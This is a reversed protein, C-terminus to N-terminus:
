VEVDAADLLVADPVAKPVSHVALKKMEGVLLGDLPAANAGFAWATYAIALIMTRMMM